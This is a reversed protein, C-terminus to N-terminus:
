VAPFHNVHITTGTNHDGSSPNVAFVEFRDISSIFIGAGADFRCGDTCFMHKKAMKKLATGSNQPDVTLDVSYLDMWDSPDLTSVRNFAVMFLGGGKQAILNVNQYNGFNKDIWGNKDADSKKWTFLKTFPSGAFPDAVSKYFDVTKADYTAVALAAGSGFSTLGCAGATSVDVAGNRYISLSLKASQQSFDWFQLQSEIRTADDELGAVLFHGFAQCGGAHHLNPYDSTTMKVHPLAKGSLGDEAMVCPVFYGQRDGSSTIVLLPPKRPLRANAERPLRQIGQFHGGGPLVVGTRDIAISIPNVAVKDFATAVNTVMPNM